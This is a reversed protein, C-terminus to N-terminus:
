KTEIHKAKEYNVDKILQNVQENYSDELMEKEKALRSNEAELMLIRHQALQLSQQLKDIERTAELNQRILKDTGIIRERLSTLAEENM